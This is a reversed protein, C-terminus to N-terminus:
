PRLIVLLVGVLLLMSIAAFVGINLLTASRIQERLQSASLRLPDAVSM